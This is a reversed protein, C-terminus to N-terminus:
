KYNTYGVLLKFLFQILIPLIMAMIELLSQLSMDGGSKTMSLKLWVPKVM